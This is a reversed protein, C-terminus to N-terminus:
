IIHTQRYRDFSAMLNTDNLVAWVWRHKGGYAPNILGDQVVNLFTKFSVEYREAMVQMYREDHGAPDILKMAKLWDEPNLVSGM